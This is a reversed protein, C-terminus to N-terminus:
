CLQYAGGVEVFCILCKVLLIKFDFLYRLIDGKYTGKLARAGQRLNCDAIHTFLIIMRALLIIM